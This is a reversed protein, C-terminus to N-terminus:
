AAPLIVYKKWGQERTGVENPPVNGHGHAALIRQQFEKTEKSRRAGVRHDFLVYVLMTGLVVAVGVGMSEGIDAGISAWSVGAVYGIALAVLAVVLMWLPTWGSAYVREAAANWERIGNHSFRIVQRLTRPQGCEGCLGMLHEVPKGGEERTAVWTDGRKHPEGEAGGLAHVAAEAM